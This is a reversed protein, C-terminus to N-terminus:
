ALGKIYEVDEASLDFWEGNVRKSAFRRHLEAELRFMNQTSVVHLYEVEFPLSVCFDRYRKALNKTCGIKFYQSPSQLLYVFGTYKTSTKSQPPTQIPNRPSPPLGGRLELHKQCYAQYAMEPTDYAGLRYRVGAHNIEAKWAGRENDFYVGKYGSTNNKTLRESM